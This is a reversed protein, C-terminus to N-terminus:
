CPLAVPITYSVSPFRVLALLMVGRDALGVYHWSGELLKSFGGQRNPPVNRHTAAESFESTEPGGKWLREHKYVYASHCLRAPVSWQCQVQLPATATSGTVAANM